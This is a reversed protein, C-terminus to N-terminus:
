RWTKGTLTHDVKSSFFHFHHFLSFSFPARVTIKRYLVVCSDDDFPLYGCLLAFLLVGMSWVDAQFLTNHTQFWENRSWPVLVLCIYPFVTSKHNTSSWESEPRKNLVLKYSFVWFIFNFFATFCEGRLWYLSKGPHAWSCCLGSKWLVDDVWLWPRGTVRSWVHCLISCRSFVCGICTIRGKWLRSQCLCLPRLNLVISVTSIMQQPISSWQM